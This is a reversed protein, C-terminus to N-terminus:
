VAKGYGMFVGWWYVWASGGGGPQPDMISRFGGLHRTLLTLFTRRVAAKLFIGGGSFIKGKVEEPNHNM